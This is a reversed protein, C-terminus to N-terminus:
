LKTWAWAKLCHGRLIMRIVRNLCCAGMKKAIAVTQDTSYSDLVVIEDAVQQLSAICREINTEENFTIIVASIPQM